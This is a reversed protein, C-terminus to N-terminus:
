TLPSLGLKEDGPTTKRVEFHSLEEPGSSLLIRWGAALEM